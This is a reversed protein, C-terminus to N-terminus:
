RHVQRMRDDEARNEIDAKGVRLEDPNCWGCSELERSKESRIEELVVQAQLVKSANDHNVCRIVLGLSLLNSISEFVM